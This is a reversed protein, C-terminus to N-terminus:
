HRGAEVSLRGIDFPIMTAEPSVRGEVTLAAAYGEAANLASITWRGAEEPEERVELLGAAEGPALSVDFRDLPIALGKGRAKIYSEKRTWCNFFAACRQAEPLARLVESERPSFFRKAIAEYQLNARMYELDVGVERDRAIAYLVLDQSHSVNFRLWAGEHREALAPKGYAGYAFELEGAKRGAYWGLISRLLGRAAIFHRRTKDFVFREARAVEDPSLLSEFHRLVETPQDLPASWM